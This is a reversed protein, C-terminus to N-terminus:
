EISEGGRSQRVGGVRAPGQTPRTLAGMRPDGRGRRARAHGARHGRRRRDRVRGRARGVRALARRRGRARRGDPRRRPRVDMDVLAGLRARRPAPVVHAPVGRGSRGAGRDPRRHRRRRHGPRVAAREPRRARRDGMGRRQGGPRRAGERARHPLAPQRQDHLRRGEQPRARDTAPPAHCAPRRPEHRRRGRWALRQRPSRGARRRYAREEGPVRGASHRGHAPQVLAPRRCRRRPRRRQRRGAGHLRALARAGSRLGDRALHDDRAPFRRPRARARRGDARPQVGDSRGCRRSGRRDHDEGADDDHGHQFFDFSKRISNGAHGLAGDAVRREVNEAAVPQCRQEGIGARGLDRQEGIQGVVEVEHEPEVLARDDPHRCAERDRAALRRERDQVGGGPEPVRDAREGRRPDVARRENHDDALLIAAMERLLREERTAEVPERAVVRHPDVLGDTRLVDRARDCRAEWSATM